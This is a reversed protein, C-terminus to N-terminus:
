LFGDKLYTWKWEQWNQIFGAKVPNNIIYHIIRELERGDRVVHDYSEHQWFTGSRNLIRNCKLATYKKLSALINTLLYPSEGLRRHTMKNFQEHHSEAFRGVDIVLHVHNPMICYSILEYVKTDRHHIADAVISAVQSEGLWLPGSKGSDLLADFKGFYQKRLKTLEDKKQQETLSLKSLRNEEIAFETKLNDIVLKPLSGALRFTVFFTAVGPQYHPLHRRYFDTSNNSNM